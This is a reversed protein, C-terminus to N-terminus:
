AQAPKRAPAAAHARYPSLHDARAYGTASSASGYSASGASYTDHHDIHHPHSVVEYTVAHPQNQLLRSVGLIVAAALALKSVVVAKFVLVALAVFKLVALMSIKTIAAAGLAYLTKFKHRALILSSM